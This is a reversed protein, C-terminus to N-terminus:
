GAPRGIARYRPQELWQTVTRPDLSLTRAIPTVNLRDHRHLPKIRCFHDYDIM